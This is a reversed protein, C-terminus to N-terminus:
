KIEALTAAIVSLASDAVSTSNATLEELMNHFPEGDDHEKNPNRKVMEPILVEIIKESSKISPISNTDGRKLATQVCAEIMEDRQLATFYAKKAINPNYHNVISFDTFSHNHGLGFTNIQYMPEERRHWLEKEGTEPNNVFLWVKHKNRLCSVAEKKHSVVDRADSPTEKGNYGYPERPTLVTELDKITAWGPAHCCFRDAKTRSYLKGKYVRISQPRIEFVCDKNNEDYHWNYTKVVFALPFETESLTIEPISVTTEDKIYHSRYKRCGKPIYEELYFFLIKLKV